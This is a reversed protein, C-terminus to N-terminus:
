RAVLISKFLRVLDIDGQPEVEEVSEEEKDSVEKSHAGHREISVM